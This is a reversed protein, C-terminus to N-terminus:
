PPPQLAHFNVHREWMLEYPWCFLLHFICHISKIILLRYLSHNNHGKSGSTAIRSLAVWVRKRSPRPNQARDHVSCGGVRYYLRARLMCRPAHMAGGMDHEAWAARARCCVGKAMGAITITPPSEGCQM